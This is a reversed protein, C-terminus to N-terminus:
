SGNTVVMIKLWNYGSDIEQPKSYEIEVHDSTVKERILVNRVNLSRALSIERSVSLTQAHPNDSTVLRFKLPRGDAKMLVQDLYAEIVSITQESLNVDNKNYLILLSNDDKIETKQDTGTTMEGRVQELVKKLEEVELNLASNQEELAETKKIPNEVTIGQDLSAKLQEPTINGAILDDIKKKMEASVAMDIKQQTEAEMRKRSQANLAYMVFTTILIFFLFMMLVSSLIDVFGPWAIAGADDDRRDGAM